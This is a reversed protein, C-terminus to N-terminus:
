GCFRVGSPIPVPESVQTPRSLEAVDERILWPAWRQTQRRHSALRRRREVTRRYYEAHYERRSV